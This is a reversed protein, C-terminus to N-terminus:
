RKCVPDQQESERCDRDRAISREFEAKAQEPALRALTDAMERGVDFHQYDVPDNWHGGWRTFGNEAFVDIVAEATGRLDQNPLRMGNRDLYKAGAPPDIIVAPDKRTVYPNEVPNLDIAVGYAHLSLRTGNKIARVNFGSTNDDAMSAEDDGNYANMLRAKAIPFRRERLTQFIRLVRDAVADMVVIQGDRHEKGSFDVYTFQVLRLRDCGVPAGPNLVRTDKMAACLADDVPLVGDAAVAPSSALIGLAVVIGALKIM